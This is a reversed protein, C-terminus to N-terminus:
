DAIIKETDSLMKELSFNKLVSEHLNKAFSSAKDMNEHMFRIANAIEKSNKPRILLGSTENEIIEPIGGVSTAIVPVEAFGAEILTYNLAESLSPLLFIDFAKAYRAADKVFGKLSVKDGIKKESVEKELEARTEGEGLIVYSLNPISLLRMAEIATAISGYGTLM